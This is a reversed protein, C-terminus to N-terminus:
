QLQHLVDENGTLGDVPQGQPQPHSRQGNQQQRLPKQGLEGHGDEDHHGTGGSGSPKIQRSATDGAQRRHCRPQRSQMQGIEGQQRRHLPQAHAQRHGDDDHCLRQQCFVAKGQAVVVLEAVIPLDQAEGQGIEGGAQHSAARHVAAHGARRHVLLETPAGLQHRQHRGDKHPRHQEKAGPENLIQRHGNQGSDDDGGQQPRHFKVQRVPQELGVSLFEVNKHASEGPHQHQAGDIAHDDAYHEGKGVDDQAAGLRTPVKQPDDGVVRTEVGQISHTVGLRQGM